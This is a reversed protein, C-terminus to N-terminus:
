NVKNFKKILSKFKRQDRRTMFSQYKNAIIIIQEALNSAKKLDKKDSIINTTEQNEVKVTSYKTFYSICDLFSQILASYGLM